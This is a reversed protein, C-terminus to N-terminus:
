HVGPKTQAVPFGQIRGLARALGNFRSELHLGTLNGGEKQGLVELILEWTNGQNKRYLAAFTEARHASGEQKPMTM